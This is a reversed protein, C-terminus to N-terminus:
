GGPPRREPRPEGDKPVPEQGPPRGRGDRPLPRERMEGDPPGGMGPGPGQRLRERLAKQMERFKTQQEPTLLPLLDQELREYNRRMEAGTYSRLRSMDEMNRRLIPRIKGAQEDSLQLHQAMRRFMQPNWAAAAGSLGRKEAVEKVVRLSIVAGTIAGAAFIGVLALIVKWGPM